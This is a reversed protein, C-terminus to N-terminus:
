TSCGALTTPPRGKPFGTSGSSYLWFAVDDRSTDAPDLEPSAADVCAQWDITGPARDGGVVVVHRLYRCHAQIPAIQSYLPGSVVAVSARSDNLFYEYDAPQMVTNTPIPVAGIKIAGFFTAVFEPTDLLLLLVRNELAVGLGRLANGARNALAAMQAYTHTQGGTYIAVRDGRGAELNHDLVISANYRDQEDGSRAM